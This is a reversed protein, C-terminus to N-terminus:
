PGWVASGWTSTGWVGVSAGPAPSGACGATVALLAIVVVILSFRFYRM